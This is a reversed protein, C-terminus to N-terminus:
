SKHALRPRESWRGSQMITGLALIGIVILFFIFVTLLLFLGRLETIM